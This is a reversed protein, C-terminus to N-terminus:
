HLLYQIKIIEQSKQAPAQDLAQDVFNPKTYFDSGDYVKMYLHSNFVVFSERYVYLIGSFTAKESGDRKNRGQPDM